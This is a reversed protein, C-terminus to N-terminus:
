PLDLPEKNTRMSQCRVKKVAKDAEKELVVKTLWRKALNKKKKYSKRRTGVSSSEEGVGM